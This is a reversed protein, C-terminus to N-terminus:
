KKFTHKIKSLGRAVKWSKSQYINNLTNKLQINENKIETNENILETMKKKLMEKNKVEEVLYKNQEEIGKNYKILKVNREQLHYNDYIPNRYKRQYFSFIEKDLIDEGLKSDVQEFIPIFEKIQMKGYLDYEEIKDRIKEINVISRYILFEIPVYDEVWEQDFFICKDNIIFCNKLIMDWYGNKLYHFKSLITKDIDPIYKEIVTKQNEQYPISIKSIEEKYKNLIRLIEEPKKDNDSILQSALKADVFRSVIKDDRVEDLIEINDQKLNQIINKMAEIHAKSKINISTKEVEKEKIKTMLQFKEKRYNNFSIFKTENRFEVQSAEIFYSNAFFPFMKEDEKIITDYADVESYFIFSSENYYPFYGNIKSSTPLYQDTFILSSLKYDPLPYFFKYYNLGVQRLIKEIEKKGLKYPKKSSKYGTISDFTIGTCKDRDGVYSRLAFKNDTAILLKGEPKLLSKCYTILDLTPNETDFINQAFELLGFLTIYDFKEEFNINQFKGVIIELNNKDEHRKAIAEARKKNLEISVVKECKECLAGTIEGLHAGIELVVSNPKFDYAYVLNKRINSLGLMVEDSLDKKVISEFDETNTNIYEIVKDENPRLEFECEKNYYDLNLRM